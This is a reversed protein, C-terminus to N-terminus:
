LIITWDKFFAKSIVNNLTIQLYSANSYEHTRYIAGMRYNLRKQHLFYYLLFFIIKYLNLKLLNLKVKSLFNFIDKVILYHNILHHIYRLLFRSIALMLSRYTDISLFDQICIEVGRRKNCCMFWCMFWTRAGFQIWVKM